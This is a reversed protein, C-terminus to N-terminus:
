RFIWIWFWCMFELTILFSSNLSYLFYSSKGHLVFLTLCRDIRRYINSINNLRYKMKRLPKASLRCLFSSRFPLVVVRGSCECNSPFTLRWSSWSKGDVGFICGITRTFFKSKDRKLDRMLLQFFYLTNPIKYENFSDFKNESNATLSDHKSQPRSM